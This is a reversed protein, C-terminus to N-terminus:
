PVNISAALLVSYAADLSNRITLIIFPLPRGSHDLPWLEQRCIWLDRTRNETSGSKRHLLPNPVPVVWGRSCLQTAAQFFIYRSRDLFGDSIVVTLSGGCQSRSVRYGCFNLRIEGILPPRESLITRERVLAVSNKKIFPLPGTRIRCCTDRMAQHFQPINTARLKAMVSISAQLILLLFNDSNSVYNSSNYRTPHSTTSDWLRERLVLGGLSLRSKQNSTVNLRWGQLQTDVDGADVHHLLRLVVYCGHCRYKSKM